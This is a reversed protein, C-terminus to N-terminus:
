LRSLEFKSPYKSSWMDNLATEIRKSNLRLTDKLGYKNEIAIKSLMIAVDKFHVYSKDLVYIPVNYVRFFMFFQKTTLQFTNKDDRLCIKSAINDVKLHAYGGVRSFKHQTEQIPERPRSDASAGFM